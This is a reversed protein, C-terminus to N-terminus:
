YIFFPFSACSTLRLSLLPLPPFLSSPVATSLMLDNEFKFWLCTSATCQPFKSTTRVAPLYSSVKTHNILIQTQKYIAWKLPNILQSCVPYLLLYVSSEASKLGRRRKFVKDYLIHRSHPQKTGLAAHKPLAQPDAESVIFCEKVKLCSQGRREGGGKRISLSSGTESCAQSPCTMIVSWM